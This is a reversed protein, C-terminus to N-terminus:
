KYLQAKRKIYYEGPLSDQAKDLKWFQLIVQVLQSKDNTANGHRKWRFPRVVCAMSNFNIWSLLVFQSGRECQQLAKIYNFNSIVFVVIANMVTFRWRWHRRSELEVVLVPGETKENRSCTKNHKTKSRFLTLTIALLTCTNYPEETCLYYIFITEASRRILYVNSPSAASWSLRQPVLYSRFPTRRFPWCSGPLCRPLLRSRWVRPM